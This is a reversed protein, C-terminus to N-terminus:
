HDLDWDDAKEMETITLKAILYVVIFIISGCVLWKV